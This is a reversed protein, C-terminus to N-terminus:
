GLIPAACCGSTATRSGASFLGLLLPLRTATAKEAANKMRIMSRIAESDLSALRLILAGIRKEMVSQLILFTLRKCAFPITYFFMKPRILGCGCVCFDAMVRLSGENRGLM